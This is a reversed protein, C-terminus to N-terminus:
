LSVDEGDEEEPITRLMSPEKKKKNKPKFPKLSKLKFSMGCTKAEFNYWATAEVVARVDLGAPLQEGNKEVDNPDLDFPTDFAVRTGDATVPAKVYVSGSYMNGMNLTWEDADEPVRLVKQCLTELAELDSDNHLGVAIRFALGKEGFQAKDTVLLGQYTLEGELVLDAPRDDCKLFGQAIPKGNKKGKKAMWTDRVQKLHLRGLKPSRESMARPTLILATSM